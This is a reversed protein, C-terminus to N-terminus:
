YTAVLNDGIKQNSSSHEIKKLPLGNKDCPYEGAFMAVHTTPRTTVEGALDLSSILAGRRVQKKANVYPVNHLVLHGSIIDIEYGEDKLKTLDPSLSILRQSM